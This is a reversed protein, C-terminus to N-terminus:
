DLSSSAQDLSRSTLAHLAVNLVSEASVLSQALERLTMNFHEGHAARNRNIVINTFSQAAPTNLTDQKFTEKVSKDFHALFGALDNLRLGRWTKEVAAELFTAVFPDTQTGIRQLALRKFDTEFTACALAMLHATLYMEISSGELRQAEVHKQCLGIERHLETITVATM